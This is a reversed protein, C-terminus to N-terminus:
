TKKPEFDRKGCGGGGGALDCVYMGVNGLIWIDGEKKRLPRRLGEYGVFCEVGLGM